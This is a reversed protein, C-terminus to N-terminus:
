VKHNNRHSDDPQEPQTQSLQSEPSEVFEKLDMLMASWMLRYRTLWEDIERLPHPNLRYIRRRGSKHEAVLKARRLLRLHRSIAPRSVPFAAAIENVTLPGAGLHDLIARRTDDAVARFVAPRRFRVNDIVSQV